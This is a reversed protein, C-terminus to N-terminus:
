KKRNKKGPDPPQKPAQTRQEDLRSSQVKQILSFFDEDPVTPAPRSVPISSRQDEMRTGQCRMLMEFFNDDPVNEEKQQLIQDIVDQSNLGPFRLDARQDDMRSSQIGAVMDLFEQAGPSSVTVRKSNDTGTRPTVPEVQISCRQDDLRRSQFKSLLDFFSEDDFSVQQISQLKEKNRNNLSLDSETAVSAAKQFKPVKPRAGGNMLEAKKDPTLKMLEMNEMSHRRFPRRSLPLDTEDKTQLKIDHLDTIGLATQLDVLNMEATLQGTEDGIERSIQLHKNAYPLAEEHHGLAKHANGLSWCARGEGVRDELERAIELHRLHYEIAKEYDRLLTYTNGLSYCAQAELAKDGLQKAIQLSKRYDDCATEFENLFIHANGLNSYARREASKDGFEKAISLREEHYRIALKFNGLLYHTNGLNGCARGQAAKDSLEKVLRLNEEYYEAAKQLAEKVELPFEGPDQDGCKGMHKGKAHYVNGLNYLALARAEGVKDSLQRSIELHRNCCAIAEDFKQLVKLTNGLNGSAKAEGIMDGLTRALTLDLKHYDLAKGYEQLYFYANGLQSYIASLTKLDDTGAQVAAEFFQVGTQCDGAKCLREGELALEMCSCDMMKSEM